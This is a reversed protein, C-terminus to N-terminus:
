YNNIFYNQLKVCYNCNCNGRVFRAIRSEYDNWDEKISVINCSYIVLISRVAQNLIM